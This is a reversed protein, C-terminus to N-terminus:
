GLNILDISGQPMIQLFAQYICFYCRSGFSKPAVKVRHVLYQDLGYIMGHFKHDQHIIDLGAVTYEPQDILFKRRNGASYPIKNGVWFRCAVLPQMGPGIDLAPVVQELYPGRFHRAIGLFADDFGPGFM